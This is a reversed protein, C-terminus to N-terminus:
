KEYIRSDDITLSYNYNDCCFVGEDICEDYTLRSDEINEVDDKTLREESLFVDLKKTFYKKAIEKTKCPILVTEEGQIVVTFIREPGGIYYYTPKSRYVILDSYAM